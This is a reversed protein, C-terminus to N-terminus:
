ERELKLYKAPVIGEILIEHSRRAFNLLKQQLRYPHNAERITQLIEAHEVIRVGQVEGSSIASRLGQLDLILKDSGFTSTVSEQVSFSSFPSNAKAAPDWLGHVHESVTTPPRNTPGEISNPILDGKENIYSKRYGDKDFKDFVDHDGRFSRDHKLSDIVPEEKELVKYGDQELKKARDDIKLKKWADEDFPERKLRANERAAEIPRLRHSPDLKSQFSRSELMHMDQLVDKSEGAFHEVQGVGALARRDQLGFVKTITEAIAATRRQVVDAAPVVKSGINLGIQGSIELVETLKAAKAFKAAVIPSAMGIWFETELRSKIAEQDKPSLSAWKKNLVDAVDVMDKLPKAWDGSASVDNCYKESLTFLQVGGVISRAVSKGFEEGFKEAVETEGFICAHAFDRINALDQLTQSLAETRGIWRGIERQFEERVWGEAMGKLSTALFQAQDQEPLRAVNAWDTPEELNTVYGFLKEAAPPIGQDGTEVGSKGELSQSDPLSPVKAESSVDGSPETTLLAERAFNDIVDTPIGQAKAAARMEQIQQAVVQRDAGQETMSYEALQETLSQVEAVGPVIKPVVSGFAENATKQLGEVVKERQGAPLQEASRFQLVLDKALPDGDRGLLILDQRSVESARALLNNSQMESESLKQIRSSVRDGDVIQISEDQAALDFRGGTLYSKLSGDSANTREREANQVDLASAHRAEHVAPSDAQESKVPVEANEHENKSVDAM